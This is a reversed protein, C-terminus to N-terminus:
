PFVEGIECKGYWTIWAFFLDISPSCCVACLVTCPLIHDEQHADWPLWFPGRQSCAACVYSGSHCTQGGLQRRLCWSAIAPNRDSRWFNASMNRNNCTQGGSRHKWTQKSPTYACPRIMPSRGPPLLICAPQQWWESSWSVVFWCRASALCVRMTRVTAPDM